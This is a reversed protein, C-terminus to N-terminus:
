PGPLAPLGSNLAMPARGPPVAGRTPVVGGASPRSSPATGRAPPILAPPRVGDVVEPVTPGAAPREPRGAAPPGAEGTAGDVPGAVARRPGRAHWSKGAARGSPTRGTPPLRSVPPRGSVPFSRNPATQADQVACPAVVAAQHQPRLVGRKGPPGTRAGPQSRVRERQGGLVQRLQEALGRVGGTGGSP